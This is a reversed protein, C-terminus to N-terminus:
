SSSAQPSRRRSTRSTSSRGGPSGPAAFSRRMPTSSSKRTPTEGGFIAVVRGYITAAAKVSLQQGVIARLLAGYADVPPRRRRRKEISMPGIEAILSAMVKDASALYAM